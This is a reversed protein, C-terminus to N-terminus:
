QSFNITKIRMRPLYQYRVRGYILIDCHLTHETCARSTHTQRGRGYYYRSSERSSRETRCTTLSDHSGFNWLRSYILQLAKDLQALRGWGDDILRLKRKEFFPKLPIYNMSTCSRILITIISKLM